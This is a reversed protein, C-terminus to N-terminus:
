LSLESHIFLRTSCCWDSASCEVERAQEVDALVNVLSEQWQNKTKQYEAMAVAEEDEVQREVLSVEDELTHLDDELRMRLMRFHHEGAIHKKATDNFIRPLRDDLAAQWDGSAAREALGSREHAQEMSQQISADVESAQRCMANTHDKGDRAARETRLQALEVAQQSAGLLKSNNPTAAGPRTAGQHRCRAKCAAM